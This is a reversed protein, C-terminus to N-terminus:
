YYFYAILVIRLIFVIKKLFVGSIVDTIRLLVYRGGHRLDIILDYLAPLVAM